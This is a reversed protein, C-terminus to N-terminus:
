FIILMFVKLILQFIMYMDMEELKKINNVTLEKLINVLPLLNKNLEFKKANFQYTKVGKVLLFVLLEMTIYVQVIKKVQESFIISYETEATIQQVKVM